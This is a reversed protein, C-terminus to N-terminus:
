KGDFPNLQTHPSCGHFAEWINEALALCTISYNVSTQHWKNVHSSDSSVLCIMIECHIWKVFAHLMHFTMCLLLLRAGGGWAPWTLWRPQMVWNPLFLVDLCIRCTNLPTWTLVAALGNCASGFGLNWLYDRIFGVRHPHANDDQLVSSTGLSHRHPIVEPQLIGDRYQEAFLNGGTMVLFVPRATFPLWPLDVPLGILGSILQKWNIGSQRPLSSGTM